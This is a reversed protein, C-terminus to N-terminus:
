KVTLEIDALDVVDGNALTAAVRLDFRGARLGLTFSDDMELRVSQSGAGAVPVSMAHWLTRAADRQVMNVTAGTLDPWATSALDIARGDADLYDYGRLITIGSGSVVPSTVTIVADAQLIAYTGLLATDQEPTLGGSSGPAQELANATLRYIAGDLELLTDLKNAIALISAVSANAPAVYASGALRTAVSTETAPDAPILDTKAKISAIGTNNPATYGSTALRTSVAADLNALRTDGLSTLGAGNAGIRAYSDGSQPSHTGSALTGVIRSLLTTVGSSDAVSTLTRTASAWVDAALTGFSTLTRTASAWVASALTTREGSTLSMADGAKAPAYLGQTANLTVGTGAALNDLYGARAASLRTELDDVYAKIASLGYTASGLEGILDGASQVTAKVRQVDAPADLSVKAKCDIWRKTSTADYIRVDFSFDGSAVLGAEFQIEYLGPWNTADVAGWRVRGATPASWTGPTAISEVNSAGSWVGYGTGTDRICVIRLNADNYAIGSVPSGSADELCVRIRPNSYGKPIHNLM